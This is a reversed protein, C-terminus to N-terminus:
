HHPEIDVDHPCTDPLENGQADRIWHKEPTCLAADCANKDGHMCEDICGHLTIETVPHIENWGHDLDTVWEGRVSVYDGKKITAYKQLLFDGADKQQGLAGGYMGGLWSSLATIGFSVVLSLLIALLACLWAFIGCALSAPLLSSLIALGAATGAVAGIVAGAMAGICAYEQVASQVECVMVAYQLRAPPGPDLCTCRVQQAYQDVFRCYTHRIIVLITLDPDWVWPAYWRNDQEIGSVVGSICENKSHLTLHTMRSICAGLVGGLAGLSGILPGLGLGWGIAAGILAGIIAYITTRPTPDQGRCRCQHDSL